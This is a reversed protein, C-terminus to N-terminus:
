SRWVISAFDEAPSVNDAVFHSELPEAGHAFDSAGSYVCVLWEDGGDYSLVVYHDDTQTEWYYFCVDHEDYVNEIGHAKIADTVTAILRETQKDNYM